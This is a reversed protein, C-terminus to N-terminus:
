AHREGNRASKAKEIEKRVQDAAQIVAQAKIKAGLYDGRDFAGEMDQLTTQASETDSKLSALDAETGKGKPASALDHQAQENAQKAQAMLQTAEEKAKEKGTAADAVAQEANRKVEAAMDRAKSYSRFLASRDGQAALEAELRTEADSAVRWADPAYDAAQASKANDLAQKAADLDQAPMEACGTFTALVAVVSLVLLTPKM